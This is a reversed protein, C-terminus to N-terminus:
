NNVTLCYIWSSSWYTMVSTDGSPYPIGIFEEGHDIAGFIHAFEHQFLNDAFYLPLDNYDYGVLYTSVTGWYERDDYCGFFNQSAAGWHEGEQDGIFFCLVDFGHNRSSVYRTTSAWDQNLKLNNKAEQKAYTKWEEWTDPHGQGWNEPYCIDEYIQTTLDVATEFRPNVYLDLLYSPKVGYHNYWDVDYIAYLFCTRLEGDSPNGIIIRFDRVPACSTEETDFDGLLINEYYLFGSLAYKEIEYIAKNFAFIGSSETSTPSDYLEVISDPSITIIETETPGVSLEELYFPVYGEFDEYYPIGDFWILLSLERIILDLGWNTITVDLEIDYGKINDYYKPVISVDVSYIPPVSVGPISNSEFPYRIAIDTFHTAYAFGQNTRASFGAKGGGYKVMDYKTDYSLQPEASFTSSKTVWAELLTGTARLKLHWVGSIYGTNLSDTLVVVQGDTMRFIKAYDKYLRLFYGDTFTSGSLEKTRLWLAPMNFNNSALIWAEISGDGFEKSHQVCDYVPGDTGYAALTNGDLIQFTGSTDWQEFHNEDGFVWESQPVPTNFEEFWINVDYSIKVDDFYAHRVPDLNTRASIGAHGVNYKTSDGSTDYSFTPSTTFTSSTTVWANLFTGTAEFKLHWWKNNILGTSLSDLENFAGNTVRFIKAHQNYLRLAYGSQYNCSADPDIDSTRLWFTPCQYQSSRAYAWGEITGDEFAAIHQVADYTYGSPKMCNSRLSYTGEKVKYTSRAFYSSHAFKWDEMQFPHEEFRERYIEESEGSIAAQTPTFCFPILSISFSILILVSSLKKIKINLM